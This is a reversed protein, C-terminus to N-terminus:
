ATPAAMEEQLETNNRQNIVDAVKATLKDITFYAVVFGVLDVLLSLALKMGDGLNLSQVYKIGYEMGFVAAFLAALILLTLTVLRWTAGWFSMGQPKVQATTM